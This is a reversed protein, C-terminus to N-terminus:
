RGGTAVERGYWGRGNWIGDNKMLDESKMKGKIIRWLHARKRGWEGFEDVSLTYGGNKERWFGAVKNIKEVM